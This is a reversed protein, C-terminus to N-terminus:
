SVHPHGGVPDADAEKPLIEFARLLKVAEQLSTPIHRTQQIAVGDLNGPQSSYDYHDEQLINEDHKQKKEADTDALAQYYGGRYVGNPSAKATTRIEEQTGATTTDIARSRPPHLLEGTVLPHLARRYRRENGTLIGGGSGRGRGRGSYPGRGTRGGADLPAREDINKRRRPSNRSNVFTFGTNNIAIRGPATNISGDISPLSQLSLQEKDISNDDGLQPRQQPEEEPISIIETEIPPPCKLMGGNGQPRGRKSNPTGGTKEEAPRRNDRNPTSVQMGIVENSPPQEQTMANIAENTGDGRTTTTEENHNGSAEQVQTGQEEHDHQQVQQNLQATTTPTTDMQNLQQIGAENTTRTEQNNASQYHSTTMQQPTVESVHTNNAQNNRNQTPATQTNSTQAATANGAPNERQTNNHVGSHSERSQTGNRNQSAAVNAPTQNTYPSRPLPITPSTVEKQQQEQHSVIPPDIGQQQQTFPTGTVNGNGDGNSQGQYTHSPPSNNTFQLQQPQVQGQQTTMWGNILQNINNNQSALQEQLQGARNNFLDMALMLKKEFADESVAMRREAEVTRDTLIKVKQDQLHQKRTTEEIRRTLGSVAQSVQSQISDTISQEDM